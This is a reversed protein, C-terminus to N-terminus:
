VPGATRRWVMWLRQVVTFGALVALVWLAVTIAEEVGIGAVILGSGLLVVRPGRTFLGEKLKVGVMEARARAYSVLISGVVAAFTLVQEMEEGRGMFYVFLGFLVAAESVRDMVADFASGFDTAQGTARALAGDLFDLASFVLMVIGAALLEGVGALVGAGANGSVGAVTLMNPTVGARDLFGVV